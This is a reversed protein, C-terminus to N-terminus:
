ALRRREIGTPARGRLGAGRRCDMGRNSRALGSSSTQAAIVDGFQERPLAFLQKADDIEIAVRRGRVRFDHRNEAIFPGALRVQQVRDFVTRFSRPLQQHRRAGILLFDIEEFVQEKLEDVRQEAAAPLFVSPRQLEDAFLEHATQEALRQRRHRRRISQFQKGSWTQRSPRPAETEATRLCLFPRLPEDVAEGPGAGQRELGAAHAPRTFLRANIEAFGAIEDNGVDVMGLRVVCGPQHTPLNERAERAADQQAIFGVQGVEESVAEGLKIKLHSGTPLVQHQRQEFDHHFHQTAQANRDDNGEVM